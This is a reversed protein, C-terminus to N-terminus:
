TGGFGGGGGYGGGGGGHDHVVVEHKHEPQPVHIKIHVSHFLYFNVRVKFLLFFSSFIQWKYSACYLFNSM